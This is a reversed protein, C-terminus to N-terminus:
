RSDISCLAASAFDLRRPSRTEVAPGFTRFPEVGATRDPEGSHRSDACTLRESPISSPRYDVQSRIYGATRARRRRCQVVDSVFKKHDAHKRLRHCQRANSHEIARLVLKHPDLPVGKRCCGLGWERPCVATMGADAAAENVDIQDRRRVCRRCWVLSLLGPLPAVQRDVELLPFIQRCAPVATGHWNGVDPWGGRVM